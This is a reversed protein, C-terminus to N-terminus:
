HANIRVMSGLKRGPVDLRWSRKGKGTSTEKSCYAALPKFRTSARTKEGKTMTFNECGRRTKKVFFCWFFFRPHFQSVDIMLGMDIFCPCIYLNCSRKIKNHYIYPLYSACSHYPICKMDHIISGQKMPFM